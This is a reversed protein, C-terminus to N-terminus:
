LRSRCAQWDQRAFWQKVTPLMLARGRNRYTNRLQGTMQQIHFDIQKKQLVINPPGRKLLMNQPCGKVHILRASLCRLCTSMSFHKLGDFYQPACGCPVPNSNTRVGHGGRRSGFYDRVSICNLSKKDFRFLELAFVSLGSSHADWAM